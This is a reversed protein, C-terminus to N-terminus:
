FNWPETGAYHVYTTRAVTDMQGLAEVLFGNAMEGGGEQWGPITDGCPYPM